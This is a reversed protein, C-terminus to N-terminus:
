RTNELERRIKQVDRQIQTKLKDISDFKINDRQKAVFRITAGKDYVNDNFDLLHAEIAHGHHLTPRNGIYVAAKINRKSGIDVFASYIGDQPIVINQPALNITPFGLRTGVQKGIVITGKLEHHRGLLQRAKVVDGSTLLRRIRTSSVIEDSALVLEESVVSFGLQGSISDLFDIDGERGKGFRFNNGVFVTKANLAKSLIDISFQKASIAAFATDFQQAILLDIGLGQLLSQKREPTTIRSLPSDPSFLENPHPEFTLVACKLNAANACKQCNKIIRQHGLHVGDFNGITVVTGSRVTDQPIITYDNYTMACLIRVLQVDTLLFELQM